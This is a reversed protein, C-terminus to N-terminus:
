NLTDQIVAQAAVDAGNFWDAPAPAPRPRTIQKKIAEALSQATITHYDLVTSSFKEQLLKARAIQDNTLMTASMKKHKYPIIVSPTGYCMLQVSTNYGCLSISVKCTRLYDHLNDLYSALFVRGKDQPKLCSQFFTMEKSSTAPGCAIITSINGDLYRQAEIASSILKPYVSGGGRSVVITNSIKTPPLQTGGTIIKDPFIYGTYIIRKKLSKIISAYLRSLTLPQITKKFYRTELEPPTHILFTDFFAFLAQKLAAFKQDEYCDLDAVLPYGISAIIRIKKKRMYRLTPLLEPMYDQRGFPFFETIFADPNFETATKLIFHARQHASVPKTRSQFSSRSDFPLPINVIKCNQPFHVYSQPLGGQLVLVEAGRKSLANVFSLSRTTHGLTQKHTYHFLIRM